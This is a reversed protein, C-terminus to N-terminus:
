DNEFDEELAEELLAKRIEMKDIDTWCDRRMLPNKIIGFYELILFGITIFMFFLILPFLTNFLEGFWSYLIGMGNGFGEIITM